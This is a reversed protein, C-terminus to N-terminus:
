VPGPRRPAEQSREPLYCTAWQTAPMARWSSRMRSTAKELARLVLAEFDRDDEVLLISKKVEGNETQATSEIEL